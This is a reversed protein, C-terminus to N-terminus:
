RAPITTTDATKKVVSFDMINMIVNTRSQLTVIDGVAHNSFDIIVEAREGPALRLTDMVVPAELFGNDSAIQTFKSNDSLIFSYIRANSANLIRFRMKITNVDLAANAFGNVLITDGQMGKIDDPQDMFFTYLNQYIADATGLYWSEGIRQQAPLIEICYHLFIHIFHEM